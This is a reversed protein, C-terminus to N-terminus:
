NLMYFLILYFFLDFSVDNPSSDIYNVLDGIDYLDDEMELIEKTLQPTSIVNKNNNPIEAEINIGNQANTNLKIKLKLQPPNIARRALLKAPAVSEMNKSVIQMTESQEVPECKIKVDNQDFSGNQIPMPMPIVNLRGFMLDNGVIPTEEDNILIANDYDKGSYYTNSNTNFMEENCLNEIEQHFEIAGPYLLDQSNKMPQNLTDNENIFDFSKENNNFSITSCDADDNSLQSKVSDPPSNLSSPLLIASSDDAFYDDDKGINLHSSDIWTSIQQDTKKGLEPDLHHSFFFQLFCLKILCNQSIKM